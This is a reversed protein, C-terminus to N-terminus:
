WPPVFPVSTEINKGMPLRRHSFLVMQKRTLSNAITIMEM